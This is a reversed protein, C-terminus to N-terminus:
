QAGEETEIFDHAALVREADLHPESAFRSRLSAGLAHRMAPEDLATALNRVESEFAATSPPAAAAELPMRGVWRAMRSLLDRADGGEAACAFCVDLPEAYAWRVLDTSLARSGIRARLYVLGAPADAPLAEGEAFARYSDALPPRHQRRISTLLAEASATVIKADGHVYRAEVLGYWEVIPVVVDSRVAAQLSPNATLEAAIAPSFAYYERYIREVLDRGLISARLLHDRTRNLRNVSASHPSGSVATVIFCGNSPGAPGCGAAGSIGCGGDHNNIDRLPIGLEARMVNEDTEAPPEDNPQSTGTAVHFAHSLEHYLIVSNPAIIHNGGTDFLFIGTGNCQGVDYVVRIVPSAGTRDVFTAGNGTEDRGTHPDAVGAPLGTIVIPMGFNTNVLTNLRDATAPGGPQETYTVQMVTSDGPVPADGFGGNNGACIALLDSEVCSPSGAQDIFLTM